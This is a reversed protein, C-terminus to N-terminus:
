RAAKRRAVILAAADNLNGSTELRKNLALIAADQPAGRPQSVSPRQVPPAPKAVPDKAKQQADRYKIGNLILLQMRHDRLPITAEGRWLQELEQGTFGIDDGYGKYRGARWEFRCTGARDTRARTNRFRRVRL